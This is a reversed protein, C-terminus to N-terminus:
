LINRYPGEVLSKLKDADEKECEKLLLNSQKQLDALEDKEFSKLTSEYNQSIPLFVYFVEM